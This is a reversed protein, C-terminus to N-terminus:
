HWAGFPSARLKISCWMQVDCSTRQLNVKREEKGKGKEKAKTAGAM